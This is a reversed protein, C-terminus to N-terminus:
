QVFNSKGEGQPSRKHCGMSNTQLGGLFMDAVNPPTVRFLLGVIEVFLCLAPIPCYKEEGGGQLLIDNYGRSNTLTSRLSM